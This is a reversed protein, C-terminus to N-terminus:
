FCYNRCTPVLIEQWKLILIEQPMEVMLLFGMSYEHADEGSIVDIVSSANQTFSLDGNSEYTLVRVGYQNAYVDGSIDVNVLGDYHNNIQIGVSGYDGKASNIISNESITLDISEAYNNLLLGRSSADIDGAITVDIDGQTKNNTVSIGIDPFNIENGIKASAMLNLSIDRYSHISMGANNAYIKGSFNVETSGYGRNQTRIGKSLVYSDDGDLYFTSNSNITLNGELDAYYQVVVDLGYDAGASVARIYSSNEDTFSVDGRSVILIAKSTGNFSFDDSTSVNANLYANIYQMDTTTGSCIYTSGSTNICDAYARRYYSAISGILATSFLLKKKLPNVTM